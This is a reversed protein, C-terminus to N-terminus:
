EYLKNIKPVSVIIVQFIIGSQICLIKSNELGREDITIELRYMSCVHLIRLVSGCNVKRNELLLITM